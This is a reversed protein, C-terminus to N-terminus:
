KKIKLILLQEITKNKNEKNTVKYQHEKEIIKTEGFDKIALNLENITPCTKNNLSIVIYDTKNLCKKILNVFNELFKDNQSLNVYDIEKNFIKDYIGYFEGYKNMTKPYPPDMYIVDVHENLKTILEYSDMHYSKNIKQNDFISDNYNQLDDLMLSEFSKNHYARKRGYKEYSYNEDRLKQIQNWPVNMRSYPLKRIMARRILALFLSKEYDKLTESIKILKALEEVEYDYYLVNTLYKSIEDYKSLIETQSIKVNFIDKNLIDKSNEIIAKNLIYNSYLSDNAIVTFGKEKLKYSISSGGSFLDLVTGNKIPMSSIIWDALKSKNGIYNIKPYKVM